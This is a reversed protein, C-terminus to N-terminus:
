LLNECHFFSKSFQNEYEIAAAGHAAKLGVGDASEIGHQCLLLPCTALRDDRCHKEIMLADHQVVTYRKSFDPGHGCVVVAGPPASRQHVSDAVGDVVDAIYVFVGALLIHWLM